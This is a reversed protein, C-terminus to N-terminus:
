LKWNKDQSPNKMTDVQDEQKKIKKNMNSENDDKRKQLKAISPPLICYFRNIQVDMVISSFLILELSTETVNDVRCCQDLWQNMRHDFMFHIKSIFMDDLYQQTRLIHKNDNILNVFKKVGQQPLSGKGFFLEVLAHFAKFRKISAEMSM